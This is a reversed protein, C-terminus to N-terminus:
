KEILMDLVTASSNVTYGEKIVSEKARKSMKSIINFDTNDIKEIIRALSEFDKGPVLIGNHGNQIYDSTPSGSFSVPIAGSLMAYLTTATMNKHSISLFVKTQQLLGITARISGLWGKCFVNKPIKVNYRKAIDDEYCGIGLVLFNNKPFREALSLVMPLNSVPRSSDYFTYLNRDQTEYENFPKWLNPRVGMKLLRSKIGLDELRKQWYKSTVLVNKARKANALVRDNYNNAWEPTFKSHTDNGYGDLDEMDYLSTVILIDIDYPWGEPELNVFLSKYGEMYNTVLRHKSATVYGELFKDNDSVGESDFPYIFVHKKNDM